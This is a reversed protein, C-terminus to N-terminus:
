VVEAQVHVARPAGSSARGCSTTEIIRDIEGVHNWMTDHDTGLLGYGNSLAVLAKRQRQMYMIQKANDNLKADTMKATKDARGLKKLASDWEREATNAATQAKKITVRLLLKRM